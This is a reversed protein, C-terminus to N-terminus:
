DIVRSRIAHASSVLDTGLTLLMGLDSPKKSSLVMVAM